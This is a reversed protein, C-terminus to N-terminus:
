FTFWSRYCCTKPTPEMILLMISTELTSASPYFHNNMFNQTKRIPLIAAQDKNEVYNVVYPTTLSQVVFGIHCSTHLTLFSIANFTLQLFIAGITHIHLKMQM